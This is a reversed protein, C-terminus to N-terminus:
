IYLYRFFELKLITLQELALQELALQGLALQELELQELASIQDSFKSMAMYFESQKRKIHRASDSCFRNRPPSCSYSRRYAYFATESVMAQKMGCLKQSNKGVQWVIQKIKKTEKTPSVAAFAIQMKELNTPWMTKSKEPKQLLVV